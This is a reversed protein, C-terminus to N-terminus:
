HKAYQKMPRPPAPPENNPAPKPPRPPVMEGTRCPSSLFLTYCSTLLLYSHNTTITTYYVSSGRNNPCRPELPLGSLQFHRIISNIFGSLQYFNITCTPTQAHASSLCAQRLGHYCSNITCTCYPVRVNEMAM